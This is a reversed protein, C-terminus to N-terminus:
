LFLVPFTYHSKHFYRFSRAIIKLFQSEGSQFCHSFIEQCLYDTKRISPDLSPQRGSNEGLVSRPTDSLIFYISNYGSLFVFEKM